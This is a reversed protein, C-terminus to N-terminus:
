SIELGAIAGRCGLDVALGFRAGGAAKVLFACTSEQYVNVLLELRRAAIDDHGFLYKVTRM